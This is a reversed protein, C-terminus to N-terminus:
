YISITTLPIPYTLCLIVPAKGIDNKLVLLVMGNEYVAGFELYVENM